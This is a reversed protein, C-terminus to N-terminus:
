GDLNNEMSGNELQNILLELDMGNGKKGSVVINITMPSLLYVMFTSKITKLSGKMNGVM